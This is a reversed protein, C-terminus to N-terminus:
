IRMTRRTKTSGTNVRCESSFAYKANLFKGEVANQNKYENMKKLRFVKRNCVLTLVKKSM